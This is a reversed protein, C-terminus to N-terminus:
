YPLRFFDDTVVFQYQIIKLNRLMKYISGKENNQSGNVYYIFLTDKSIDSFNNSIKQQLEDLSELHYNESSIKLDYSNSLITICNEPLEKSDSIGKKDSEGLENSNSTNLCSVLFVLVITFHHLKM